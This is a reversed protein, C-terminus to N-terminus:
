EGGYRSNRNGLWQDIAQGIPRYLELLEDRTAELSLVKLFATDLGLRVEDVEGKGVRFQRSIRAM